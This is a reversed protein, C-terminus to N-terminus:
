KDRGFYRESMNPVDEVIGKKKPELLALLKYLDNRSLTTTKDGSILQFTKSKYMLARKIAKKM